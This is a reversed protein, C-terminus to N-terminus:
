FFLMLGPGCWPIVSRGLKGYRLQGNDFMPHTPGDVERFGGGCGFCPIM